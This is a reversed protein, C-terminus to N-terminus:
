GSPPTSIPSEPRALRSQVGTLKVGGTAVSPAGTSSLSFIHQILGKASQEHAQDHYQAGGGCWRLRGILARARREIAAVREGEAAGRRRGVGAEVDASGAAGVGAESEVRGYAETGGVVAHDVESAGESRVVDRRLTVEVHAVDARIGAVCPGAVTHGVHPQAGRRAGDVVDAQGPPRAVTEDAM